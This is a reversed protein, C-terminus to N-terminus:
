TASSYHNLFIYISKNLLPLFIIRHLIIIRAKMINYTSPERKKALTNSVFTHSNHHGLTFLHWVLLETAPGIDIASGTITYCNILIIM